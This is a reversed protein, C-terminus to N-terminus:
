EVVEIPEEPFFRLWEMLDQYALKLAEQLNTAEGVERFSDGLWCLVRLDDPAINWTYVAKDFVIKGPPFEDVLLTSLLIVCKHGQANEPLEDLKISVKGKRIERACQPSPSRAPTTAGNGQVSECNSNPISTTNVQM